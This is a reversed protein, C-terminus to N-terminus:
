HPRLRTRPSLGLVPAPHVSSLFALLAPVAPQPRYSGSNEQSGQRRHSTGTSPLGSCNLQNHQTLLQLSAPWLGGWGEPYITGVEGLGDCLKLGCSLLPRTHVQHGYLYQALLDFYSWGCHMSHGSHQQGASEGDQLQNLSYNKLSEPTIKFFCKAM